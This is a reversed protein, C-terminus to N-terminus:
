PRPPSRAVRTEPDAQGYDPTNVADGILAAPAAALRGFDKNKGHGFGLKRSLFALRTPAVRSRPPFYL